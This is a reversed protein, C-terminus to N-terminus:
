VTRDSPLFKTSNVADNGRITLILDGLTDYTEATLQVMLDYDGYLPAISGIGSLNALQRYVDSAGEPKVNILLFGDVM